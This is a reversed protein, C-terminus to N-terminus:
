VRSITGAKELPHLGYLGLSPAEGSPFMKGRNAIEKPDFALRTRRMLDIDHEGFMESLLGRKELGIGHEGTISGGIRICMRVIDAACAEAAEFAGEVRGDYMILPHLNGDGAHFVNAVHIGHTEGIQAIERLADGLKSRPVVGDQVIFDPSLHGVASFACKRGRWIAQRENETEATHITRPKSDRLLLNLVRVEAPINEATGELEVILAAASGQPYEIGTAAEAAQMATRDMIELAGPLLGSAIIDGVADGAQEVSDYAALVTHFIEPQPVLRVTIELAIGFLGESGCFLGHLDPGV